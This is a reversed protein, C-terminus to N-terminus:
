INVRCEKLRKLREAEQYDVIKAFRRAQRFKILVIGILVVPLVYSGILTISFLLFAGIWGFSVSKDCQTHPLDASESIFPYAHPYKACGFVQIYLIEGGYDLTELRFITFM